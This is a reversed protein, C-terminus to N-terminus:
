AFLTLLRSRLRKGMRNEPIESVFVFRQPVAQRSQQAAIRRSFTDIVLHRAQEDAALTPDNLVVAAGLRPNDDGPPTLVVVEADKVEAFSRIKATLASISVRVEDIKIINDFRGIPKFSGDEFFELIDSLILQGGPIVPSHLIYSVQGMFFSVGKLPTFGGPTSRLRWGMVGSETSGYIEFISCGSWAMVAQALARPLEVSGSIVLSINHPGARSLDMRRFLGPSSILVVRRDAPLEQLAAPDKILRRGLPCGCCLPLFVGFTLGYLHQPYISAYFDCGVLQGNLVEASIRSEQQMLALTKEVIKPEGSTGSTFLYLPANLDLPPLPVDAAASQGAPPSYQTMSAELQPFAATEYLKDTLVLDFYQLKGGLYDADRFPLLVASRGSYYVALLALIFSARDSATVAVRKGGFTQLRAALAAVACRMEGATIDGDSSRLMVASCRQPSLLEEFAIFSLANM